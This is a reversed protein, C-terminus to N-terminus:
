IRGQSVPELEDDDSAEKFSTSTQDKRGIAFDNVREEDRGGEILAIGTITHVRKSVYHQREVNHVKLNSGQRTSWAVM